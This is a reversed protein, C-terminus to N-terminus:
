KVPHGYFYKQGKEWEMAALAKVYQMIEELKEETVATHYDAPCKLGSWVSLLSPLVSTKLVDKNKLSLFAKEMLGKTLSGPFAPETYYYYQETDVQDLLGSYYEGIEDVSADEELEDSYSLLIDLSNRITGEVDTDEWEELMALLYPVVDYSLTSVACSAFVAANDESLRSVFLLNESNLLDDHSAVSCILRICLCILKEDEVTNALKFLEEKATFDGLKLLENVLLIREEADETKGLAERLSSIGGEAQKEGYWYSQILSQIQDVNRAEM